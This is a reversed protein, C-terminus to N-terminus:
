FLDFDHADLLAPNRVAEITFQENVTRARELRAQIAARADPDHGYQEMKAAYRSELEVRGSGRVLKDALFVIEREGLPQDPALTLDAHDAVIRAARPFGHSELFDAGAQAHRRGGKAIDHTLAAGLVLGTDLLGPGAHGNAARRENLAEAMALALGAVAACHERLAPNPERMNWLARCEDPQPYGADAMAQAREYHEPRDMDLMTGMDAVAVERAEPERAELVTRLGGTGDHALIDSVVDARILPPHGREGLFAPYTVAAGHGAFDARLAAVTSPRVLPIDAPLAFFATCDPRLAAVGARFSGFMGQEFDPNHVVRAGCAEAERGVEDARHGTIVVIDAIGARRFLRVSRALVSCDGLPLLPKLRGMRSSFGAAPILAAMGHMSADPNLM